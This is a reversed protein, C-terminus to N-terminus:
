RPLNRKITVAKYYVRRGFIVINTFVAVNFFLVSEMSYKFFFLRLMGGNKPRVIRLYSNADAVYSSALLAVDSLPGLGSSVLQLRRLESIGYDDYRVLIDEGKRSVLNSDYWSTPVSKQYKGGGELFHGNDKSPRTLAEPIIHAKVMPAYIKTLRCIQLKLVRGM